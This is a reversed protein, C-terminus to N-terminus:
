APLHCVCGSENTTCVLDEGLTEEVTRNVMEMAGTGICAIHRVESHTSWPERTADKALREAGFIQRLGIMWRTPAGKASVSPSELGYDSIPCWTRKAPQGDNGPVNGNVM